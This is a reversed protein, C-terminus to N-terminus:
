NPFNKKDTTLISVRTRQQFAEEEDNSAGGALVSAQTTLYHAHRCGMNQQGAALRVLASNQGILELSPLCSSSNLRKDGLCM